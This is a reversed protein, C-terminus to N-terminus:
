VPTLEEVSSSSSLSGILSYDKLCYGMQLMAYVPNALTFIGGLFYYAVRSVLSLKLLDAQWFAVSYLFLGVPVLRFVFIAVFFVFWYTIPPQKKKYSDQIWMRVLWPATDEEYYDGVMVSFERLSQIAVPVEFALGTKNNNNHATHTTM